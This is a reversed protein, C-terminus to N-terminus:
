YMVSIRECSLSFNVTLSKAEVRSLYRPGEGNSTVARSSIHIAFHNLVCKRVTIDRVISCYRVACFGYQLTAM